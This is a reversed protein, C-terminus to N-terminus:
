DVRTTTMGVGLDICVVRLNLIISDTIIIVLTIM